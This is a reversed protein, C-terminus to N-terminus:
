WKIQEHPWDSNAARESSEGINSDAAGSRFLPSLACLNGLHLLSGLSMVEDPNCEHTVVSPRNHRGTGLFALTRWRAAVFQHNVHKAPHGGNKISDMLGVGVSLDNAKTVVDHYSALCVGCMKRRASITNPLEASEAARIDSLADDGLAPIGLVLGVVDTAEVGLEDADL